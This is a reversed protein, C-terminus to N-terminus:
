RRLMNKTSLFEMVPRKRDVLRNNLYANNPRQIYLMFSHKISLSKKIKAGL